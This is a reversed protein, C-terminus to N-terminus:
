PVQWPSPEPGEANSVGHEDPHRHSAATSGVLHRGAGRRRTPPARPTVGDHDATAPPHRPRPHERQRRPVSRVGPRQVALVHHAPEGSAPAVGQQRCRHCCRGGPAILLRGHSVMQAGCRCPLVLMGAGRPPLFLPSPLGPRTSLRPPAPFRADRGGRAGRAGRVNGATASPPKSSSAGRVNRDTGSYRTSVLAPRRLSILSSRASTCRRAASISLSHARSRPRDAVGPRVVRLMAPLGTRVPM